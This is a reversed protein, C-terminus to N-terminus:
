VVPVYRQEMPRGTKTYRKIIDTPQAGQYTMQETALTV